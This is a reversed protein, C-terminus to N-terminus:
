GVRPNRGWNFNFNPFILTKKTPLLAHKSINGRTSIWRPLNGGYFIFDKYVIKRGIFYHLPTSYIRPSVSRLEIIARLTQIYFGDDDFTQACLNLCVWAPTITGEDAMVTHDQHNKKGGKKTTLIEHVARESCLERQGEIGLMIQVYTASWHSDNFFCLDDEIYRKM